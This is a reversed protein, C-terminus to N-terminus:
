KRIIINEMIVEMDKDRKRSKSLWKNFSHFDLQRPLAMGYENDGSRNDNAKTFMNPSFIVYLKNHELPKDSSCTMVYQDVIPRSAQPAKEQSFFLYLEGAKVKVRGLGDRQYPLLCFAGNDDVLYVAVYGEVPSSFQMYLDDGDQFETSAVLEGDNRSRMLKVNLDVAASKIERILGSVTVTVILLDDKYEVQYKPEDKTEIWEGKVDSSSLSSFYEKTDGNEETAMSTTNQNIITGFEKAIAEVQALQLAKEKAQALSQGEEVIYKFTATVTATRQGFVDNTLVFLLVMSFLLRLKTM